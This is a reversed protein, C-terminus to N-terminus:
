SEGKVYEVTKLLAAHLTDGEFVSIGRENSVDYIGVQWVRNTQKLEADTLRMKCLRTHKFIFKGDVISVGNLLSVNLNLMPQHISDTRYDLFRICEDITM